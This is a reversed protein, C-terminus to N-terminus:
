LSVINHKVANEVLIQIAFPLIYYRQHGDPIQIKVSLAEGYRIKMLHIYSGTFELEDSLTM